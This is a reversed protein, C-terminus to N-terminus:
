VKWSRACMYWARESMADSEEPNDSGNALTMIPSCQLTVCTVYNSWLKRLIDSKYLPIIIM